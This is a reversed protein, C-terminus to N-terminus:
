AALGVQQNSTGHHSFDDMLKNQYDSPEDYADTTITAVYEINIGFMLDDFINFDYSLETVAGNESIMQVTNASNSDILEIGVNELSRIIEDKTFVLNKKM